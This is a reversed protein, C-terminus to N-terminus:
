FPRRNMKWIARGCDALKKEVLTKAIMEAEQVSGTTIFILIYETTM